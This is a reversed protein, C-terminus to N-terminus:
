TPHRMRLSPRPRAMFPRTHGADRFAQELRTLELLLKDLESVQGTTLPDESPWHARDPPAVLPATHQSATIQAALPVTHRDLRAAAELGEARDRLAVLLSNLRVWRHEDWGKSTPEAFREILAKAAATGYRQSLDKIQAGTMAINVGGEGPKLFIRVVRDRVAPMRMMTSDNWHWATKWLGILFSGLQSAPKGRDAGYDWTDGRGERHTQPLWVEEDPRTESRTLLSIGFTPWRPIWADFLHIPFNSCLGGDSMWCRKLRRQAKDGPEYDIAYLPIASILLPFSMALRAAVVIPLDASPLELFEKTNPSAPPDSDSLPAYTRSFAVVCRVLDEPFYRALDEPRYFLRGMDEDVSEDAAKPDAEGPPHEDLPFRYPRGHAINSAYVQLNISRAAVGTAPYGLVESPGGPADWLDRFTLPLDDAERGAVAQISGHLFGALDPATASAKEDWGRCLGFGNPVVQRTFDSLIGAATGLTVAAVLALLVAATWGILAILGEALGSLWQGTLLLSLTSVLPGALLLALFVAAIAAVTSRYQKIAEKTGALLLSHKSGRNLMALFIAFLRRTGKQPVFLRELQTRKHKDEVALLDPLRALTKFGLGSGFRRRYEAAATLAAAFAGISSGGINKFRYHSSLGSVATAYIIGSTVGGEMVVDCFRDSPANGPDLSDPDSVTSRVPDPRGAGPMDRSRSPTTGESEGRALTALAARGPFFAYLTGRTSVFPQFDRLVISPGDSRPIQFTTEPEDHHGVLPDKARGPNPTGLPNKEIWESVVREFQDEISSCFFVGMLGREKGQKDTSLSEDFPMGRRFLIRRRAPVVPDKRPSARRIHAGFPCGHGSRDLAPNFVLTSRSQGASTAPATTAGPVVLSGDPWRGCLKAKLYDADVFPFDANLRDVEKKLFAEFRDEHQVIKRLVGFSADRVFDAVDDPTAEEIWFNFKADNPYGLLLEGPEHKEGDTGERIVPLAIGDRFGFYVYRIKDLSGVVAPTAALAQPDRAPLHDAPLVLDWGQLSGDSLKELDGAMANLEDRHEGHLVIWLDGQDTAFPPEWREVASEGSDGLYRAARQAAGESFAPSKDALAAILRTPAGLARLGRQSFGVNVSVPARGSLGFTLVDDKLLTSLFDRVRVPNIVRLVFHSAKDSDYGTLAIRQVESERAREWAIASM